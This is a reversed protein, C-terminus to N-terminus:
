LAMAREGPRGRRRARDPRREAAGQGHGLADREHEQRRAAPLRHRDRPPDDGGDERRLPHEEHAAPHGPQLRDRVRGAPARGRRHRAHRDPVGRREDRIRRRDARGRLPLPRRQGRPRHLLRPVGFLQHCRRGLGRRALLLDRRGAHERRARRGQGRPGRPQLDPRHGRRRDARDRGTSGSPSGRWGDRRAGGLRDARRRLPLGRVAPLTMGADQAAGGDPLLLRGVAERRAPLARPADADRGAPAGGARGPRRSGERTNEPAISRWTRTRRRSRTSSSRRQAPGLLEIPAERVFVGGVSDFGLRVLARSPRAPRAGPVVEEVLPRAARSRASSCRGGRSPARHLRRAPARVGRDEPREGGEIM